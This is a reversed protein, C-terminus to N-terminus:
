NLDGKPKPHLADKHLYASVWEEAEKKVSPIPGNIYLRLYGVATDREAVVTVFRDNYQRASKRMLQVRERLKDREETLKKFAPHKVASALVKLWLLPDAYNKRM